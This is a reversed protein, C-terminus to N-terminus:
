VFSILNIWIFLDYWVKYIDDLVDINNNYCVEWLFERFYSEFQDFGNLYKKMIEGLFIFFSEVMNVFQKM